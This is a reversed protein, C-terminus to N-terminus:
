EAKGLKKRLNALGDHRHKRVTGEHIELKKAVEKTPWGLLELLEIVDRQRPPLQQIFERLEQASLNQMAKHEASPVAETNPEIQGATKDERKRSRIQEYVKNRVASFLWGLTADVNNLPLARQLDLFADSVAAEADVAGIGRAFRKLRPWHARALADIIRMRENDTM